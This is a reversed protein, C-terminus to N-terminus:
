GTVPPRRGYLATCAVTAADLQGDRQAISWARTARDIALTTWGAGDEDSVHVLVTHRDHEVRVRHRPNGQECLARPTAGLRAAFAVFSSWRGRPTGPREVPGSSGDTM